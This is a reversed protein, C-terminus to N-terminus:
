FSKVEKERILRVLVTEDLEELRVATVVSALAICYPSYSKLVNNALVILRIICILLLESVQIAKLLTINPEVNAYLHHIIAQIYDLPTSYALKWQLLDNLVYGEIEALEKTYSTTGRRGDEVQLKIDIM